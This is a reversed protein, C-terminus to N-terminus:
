YGELEYLETPLTTLFRSPPMATRDYGHGNYRPFSLYLRDEARTVAVYFLRTEEELERDDGSSIVRYHPFMGEALFIVFVVKWELGKAQHITSLTVCDDEEAMVDRDTESLLAVQSLFDELTQTDALSLSMQEIDELRQEYNEYETRLRGEIARLVTRVMEAPHPQTGNAPRLADLTALVAQWETRAAAPPAVSRMQESWTPEPEGAPLAARAAQWQRWMKAASAGGVRPLAEAIRMFALEDQPNAVLRLYAVVDKIHAQEFFRLGSTIRYPIRARTLEMQVDLSHFHARYLIAIDKGPIGQGMLEDIRRAVQLAELRNDAAPIVIPLGFSGAKRAPRLTKVFQRENRAIAANSIELISPVSRYNTEIKYVEADAYRRPFDFIHDVQAGRWSYISQADDGVVMLSTESGGCLLSIMREQLVNTDQYEDVLVHLFRRQLEERVLPHETLLRVMNVLLDDFDMVNAAVKRQVYDAYIRGLVEEHRSLHPYDSELTEQWTVGTNVALSHLSSITEPKPFSGAARSQGKTHEKVLARFLARQDDSDMITFGPRYGLLTAYRRLIRNATSHFTGGWISGAEAGALEAVRGLMERAAKNTFTLLLIRWGPVGHELLWAVRHTLTRTKGSGAGAIVLAHKASTEVAALQQENLLTSFDLM